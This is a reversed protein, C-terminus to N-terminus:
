EERPTRRSDTAGVFVTPANRGAARAEEGIIKYFWWSDGSVPGSDAPVGNIRLDVVGTDGAPDLNVHIWLTGDAAARVAANAATGPRVNIAPVNGRSYLMGFGVGLEAPERNAPSATFRVEVESLPPITGKLTM